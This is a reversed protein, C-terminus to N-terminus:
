DDDDDDDDEEEIENDGINNAGRDVIPNLVNEFENDNVSNSNSLEDLFVGTGPLASGNITSFTQKEGPLDEFENNVIYNGSAAVVVIGIGESGKLVNDEILNGEVSGVDSGILGVMTGDDFEDFVGQNIFTNDRIVNNRCVEGPFDGFLFIGDALGSVTNGEFINNECINIGSFFAPFVFGAVFTKGFLTSAPDPTALTNDFFDVTKGVVVFPITLNIFENDEIRTADDSFGVFEIGVFGQLFTCNEVRYGGIPTGPEGISLATGFGDFSLDRVAQHGGNLLFHGQFPDTPQSVGEITTGNDYDGQLTVGPVSVVIQTTAEIAYTGAAFQIVAGPTSAAVAAEISAVDLAAVGTPPAVSVVPADSDYDGDALVPGQGLAVSAALVLSWMM